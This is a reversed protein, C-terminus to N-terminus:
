ELSAIRADLAFIGRYIEPDSAGLVVEPAIEAAQASRVSVIGRRDGRHDVPWPAFRINVLHGPDAVLSDAKPQRQKQSKAFSLLTARTSLDGPL